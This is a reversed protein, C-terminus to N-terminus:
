EGGTPKLVAGSSKDPDVITLGWAIAITVLAGLFLRRQREDLHPRLAAYRRAVSELNQSEDPM